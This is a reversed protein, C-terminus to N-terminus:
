RAGSQPRCRCARWVRQLWGSSRPHQRPARPLRPTFRSGVLACIRTAEAGAASLRRVFSLIHSVYGDVVSRESTMRRRPGKPLIEGLVTM